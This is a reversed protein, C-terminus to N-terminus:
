DGDTGTRGGCAAHGYARGRYGRRHCADAATCQQYGTCREGGGRSLSFLHHQLAPAHRQADPVGAAIGRTWRRLRQEGSWLATREGGSSLLTPTDMHCSTEGHRYTRQAPAHPAGRHLQRWRGM